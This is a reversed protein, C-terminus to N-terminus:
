KPEKKKWCACCWYRAEAFEDFDLQEENTYGWWPWMYQGCSCCRYGILHKLWALM